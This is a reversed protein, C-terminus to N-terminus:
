PAVLHSNFCFELNIFRPGTLSYAPICNLNNIKLLSVREPAGMKGITSLIHERLWNQHANKHEGKEIEYQTPLPITEPHFFDLGKKM